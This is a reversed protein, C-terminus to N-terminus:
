RSRRRDRCETYLRVYSDYREPSILGEALKEKVACDPEAIHSCGAFRCADQWKGIERFGRAIDEKEFEDTGLSTFGPTDCIYGGGSLRILESHRTTHKGRSTKRSVGGTEMRVNGQLLNILSSKGVGSPGAVATCKGTLRKQIEEVGEQEKASFFLITYGTSEYIREAEKELEGERDLDTKNFAIMVPLGSLEMRLLFTDLLGFNPEPSKLSFIILAQDVNAVAPRLLTSKRPLIEEINGVPYAGPGSDKVPAVRCLDGVLPKTGEKRFLGRAKCEYLIGDECSVYYFGGVGRIIRGNQLAETEKM